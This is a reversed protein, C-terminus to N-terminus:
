LPGLQRRRHVDGYGVFHLCKDFSLHGQLNAEALSYRRVTMRSARFRRALPSSSALNRSANSLPGAVGIVRASQSEISCSANSRRVCSRDRQHANKNSRTSCPARADRRRPPRNSTASFSSPVASPSAFGPSRSDHHGSWAISIAILGTPTAM